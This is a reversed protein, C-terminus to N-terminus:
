IMNDMFVTLKLFQQTYQIKKRGKGQKTKALAEISYKVVCVSNTLICCSAIWCLFATLFPSCDSLSQVPSPKTLSVKLMTELQIKCKCQSAQNEQKM